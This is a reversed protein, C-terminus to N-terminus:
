QDKRAVLRVFRFTKENKANTWTPDPSGVADEYQLITLASFLRLLENTQYGSNLGDRHFGEVVVIGGPKLSQIVKDANLLGHIYVAAVLDWRNTGYDFTDVDGVVASLNLGRQRALMKANAVAVDSFDFGTVTWGRAALALANRGQGMAIDLATGPQRTESTKVLFANPPLDSSYEQTEFIRNWRQVDQASPNAGLVVLLFFGIAASAWRYRQESM